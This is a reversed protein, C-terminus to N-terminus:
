FLREQVASRSVRVGEPPSGAASRPDPRPRLTMSEDHSCLAPRGPCTACLERHPAPTPTFDQELVGAALEGVERELPDVDTADFNAEVIEAPRELFCHVIRVRTWQARLAALAYVTRQTRYAADVLPALDAGETRDSKWDVVLASGDPETALVDLAGTLLLGVARGGEVLFAFGEERRLDSAAAVRGAIASGRLGAVLAALEAAEGKPVRHGEARALEAIEETSPTQPDAFDVRELLTHVITGRVTAPLGPAAPVGPPPPEDPLGLERQLHFRYPCRAYAELASYSLRTALATAAPAPAPAPPVLAPLDAPKPQTAPAPADRGAESVGGEGSVGGVGSAGGEGSVGRVGSLSEPTIRTCRIRVPRGDRERLVVDDDGRLGDLGGAFAPALWAIPPGKVPDPWDDVDAAGSLILRERARTAAVYFLRREEQAENHVHAEALERWAFAPEADGGGLTVLRLAVRGDAAVQLPRRGNPRGRGLDAVCVVDFELGKARHITMLRVADLTDGEVPAEGEREGAAEGRALQAVRDLFGRLDPGEAAEHARALRLLKRVNALRREGGPTRLLALDYGTHQLARDLLEELSRRAAAAREATLREAFAALRGRDEAGGPWAELAGGLASWPDRETARAAAKLLVLADSSVGVLPSALVEWLRPEDYPNAVLALWAVLDQVERATWFGRGGVLYTPVRRDALAREYLAMDGTARLLVVVDGPARGGDLESRVRAALARAEAQRWPPAGAADLGLEETSDEWGTSDCVLLEVPPDAAHEDADARGAELPLFGDDGFVGAFAIDIADLLERTARFNTQLTAHRGQERREEATRDFIGVDAHRFGYISQLRDGVAFLDDRDLLALIEAQLPNVDQFEDVMVADFRGAWHERLGARAALLDRVGLELDDFDLGAAGRKLAAYRHAFASLLADIVEWAGSAHHDVVTQRWAALAARYAECTATALAAAGNAPLRLADLDALRPLRDDGLQDLRALAARATDVSKSSAAAQLEAAAQAAAARAAGATGPLDVPPAPPLRPETQGSSRLQGHVGIVMGGLRAPRYAAVVDLAGPPGDPGLVDQLAGDFAATRLRGAEREDLVRAYPDLGADLAHARLLRFCFGHITSVAASEAARVLDHRGAVAFRARVRQKLEEAAKETFTIALVRDVPVDDDLVTAAFREVMVSTKGSGAGAALLLSGERREVAEHQEPTLSRSESVAARRPLDRSVRVRAALVYGPV